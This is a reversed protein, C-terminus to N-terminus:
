YIIKFNFFDVMFISLFSCTFSFVEVHSIQNYITINRAISFLSFMGIPINDLILEICEKGLM